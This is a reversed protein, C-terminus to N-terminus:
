DDVQFSADEGVLRFAHMGVGDMRIQDRATTLKGLGPEALLIATPDLGHRCFSSDALTHSMSISFDLSM